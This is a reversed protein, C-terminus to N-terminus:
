AEAPPYRGGDAGPKPTARGDVETYPPHCGGSAETKPIAGGVSEGM